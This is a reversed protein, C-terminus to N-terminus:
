KLNFNIEKRKQMFYRYLIVEGSDENYTFNFKVDLPWKIHILDKKLTLLFVVLVFLANIMFFATVAKDRLDKLGQKIEEKRKKNEDDDIPYLYKEILGRWFEDEKRTLIDIEGRKLEGEYLWSNAEIDEEMITSEIDSTESDELLTTQPISRSARAGELVTTRRRQTSTENIIDSGRRHQRELNDLRRSIGELSSQILRLQENEPPNSKYTCLMCKFLGALSFEM